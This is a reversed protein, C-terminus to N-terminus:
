ALAYTSPDREGTQVAHNDAEKFHHYVAPVNV